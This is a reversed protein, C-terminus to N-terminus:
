TIYGERLVHYRKPLLHAAALHRWHKHGRMPRGGVAVVGEHAGLRYDVGRWGRPSGGRGALWTRMSGQISHRRERKRKSGKNYGAVEPCLMNSPLSKRRGLHSYIGM